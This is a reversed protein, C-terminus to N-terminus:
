KIGKIRYIKNEVRHVLKWRSGPRVRHGDNVLFGLLMNLEAMSLKLTKM